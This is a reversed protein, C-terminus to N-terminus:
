ALSIPQTFIPGGKKKMALWLMTPRVALCGRSEPESTDSDATIADGFRTSEGEEGEGRKRRAPEALAHSGGGKKVEDTASTQGAPLVHFRGIGRCPLGLPILNRSDKPGPGEVFKGFSYM